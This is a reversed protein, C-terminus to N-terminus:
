SACLPETNGEERSGARTQQIDPESAMHGYRELSGRLGTIYKKLRQFNWKGGGARRGKARAEGIHSAQVLTLEHVRAHM